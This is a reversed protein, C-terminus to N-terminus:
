IIGVRRVSVTSTLEEEKIKFKYIVLSIINNDENSYNRM